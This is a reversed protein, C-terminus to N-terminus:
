SYFVKKVGKKVEAEMQKLPVGGNGIFVILKKVNKDSSIQDLTEILDYLTSATSTLKFPSNPLPVESYIDRGRSLDIKIIMGNKKPEFTTQIYKYYTFSTYKISHALGIFLVVNRTQAM